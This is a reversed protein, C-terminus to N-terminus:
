GKAKRRRLGLGALGAGFLALTAPEPTGVAKASYINGFAFATDTTSITVKEIDNGVWGFFQAGSDGNVALTASDVDKTGDNLTVTVNFVQHLLPEVEFGFADYGSLTIGIEPGFATEYVFGGYGGSWTTWGSGVQQVTMLDSLNITSGDALPVDNVFTNEGRADNTTNSVTYGAVASLWATKDTVIMTANAPGALLAAGAVVAAIVM